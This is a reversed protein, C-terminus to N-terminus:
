ALAGGMRVLMWVIGGGLIAGVSIGIALLGWPPECQCAPVIILGHDRRIRDLEAAQAILGNAAHVLATRLDDKPVRIM